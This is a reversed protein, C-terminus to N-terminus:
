IANKEFILFPPTHRRGEETELNNFANRLIINGGKKTDLLDSGESRNDGYYRYIGTESDLFDPWETESGTSYLVIMAYDSTKGMSSKRFGGRNGVPLIKTLPDDSWNGSTGGKYIADIILPTDRNLSDFEFVRTDSM